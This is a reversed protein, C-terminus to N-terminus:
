NENIKKITEILEFIYNSNNINEKILDITNGYGLPSFLEETIVVHGNKDFIMIKGRNTQYLYMTVHANYNTLQIILRHLLNHLSQVTM